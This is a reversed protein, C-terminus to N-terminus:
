TGLEVMFDELGLLVPTTNCHHLALKQVIADIEGRLAVSSRAATLHRVFLTHADHQWAEALSRPLEVRYLNAKLTDLDAYLLIKGRHLIAVKNACRELDSVIHTSFLVTTSQEACRGMLESLFQRRGAPDLSGVPEDLILLSARTALARVIHLRQRQGPSLTSIATSLPVQWCGALALAEAHDWNPYLGRMMNLVDLGTLWSFLDPDQPVYALQAKAADSLKVSPESFLQAEGSDPVCIGLATKLLTTKGAGNTGLLGVIDGRALTLSAGDLVPKGGYSKKIANLNLPNSHNV